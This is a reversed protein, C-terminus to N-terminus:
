VYVQVRRTRRGSRRFSSVRFRLRRGLAIGRAGQGSITVLTAEVALLPKTPHRSIKTYANQPGYCFM